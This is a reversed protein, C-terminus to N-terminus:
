VQPVTARAIPAKVCRVLRAQCRFCAACAAEINKPDIFKGYEKNSCYTKDRTDKEAQANQLDDMEIDTLANAVTAYPLSEGCCRPPIPTLDHERVGQLIFTKVCPNCYEHKCQLQVIDTWRFRGTCAICQLAPGALIGLASAQRRAYPESPGAGKLDDHDDHDDDFGEKSSFLGNLRRALEVEIHDEQAIELYPPPAEFDPENHSMQVAVQRDDSAQAELQSLATIAEGDLDVASAISHALRADVLVRRILSRM